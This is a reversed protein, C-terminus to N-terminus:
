ADTTVRHKKIEDNVVLTLFKEIEKNVLSPAEAHPYHGTDYIMRYTGRLLRAVVIAEAQPDPFDPDASGMLVLAPAHMSTIADTCNRKSSFMMSRLANFRRQEALNKKLSRVYDQLDDQKTAVYLSKYYSAWISARGPMSMMVKLMWRKLTSMPMDRVFPGILVVGEVLDPANAAAWVVSAAAFSTGVLVSRNLGLHRLLAVIDRGVAEPSYDDWGATSEGHGRLDMTVVRHGNAQLLPSLRRYEQRLDGMGPICVMPVGSGPRDDFAIAGSEHQFRRTESVSSPKSAQPIMMEGMQWPEWDHRQAAVLTELGFLKAM